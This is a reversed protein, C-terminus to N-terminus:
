HVSVKQDSRPPNLGFEKRGREELYHPDQFRSWELRLKRQVSILQEYEDQLSALRYGNQTQQVYLWLYFIAGCTFGAGLIGAFVTWTKILASSPRKPTDEVNDDV